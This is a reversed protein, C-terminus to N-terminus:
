RYCSFNDEALTITMEIGETSLWARTAGQGHNRWHVEWRRDCDLRQRDRVEHRRVGCRAPRFDCSGSNYEFRLHRHRRWGQRWADVTMAMIENAAVATMRFREETLAGIACMGPSCARSRVSPARIASLARAPPAMRAARTAASPRHPLAQMPTSRFSTKSCRKSRTPKPCARRCPSHGRAPLPLSFM